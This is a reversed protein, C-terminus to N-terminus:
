RGSTKRRSASSTRSARSTRRTAGEAEGLPASFTLDAVKTDLVDEFTLSPDDRRAIIWVVAALVRMPPADEGKSDVARQFLRSVENIAVGAVAEIDVTERLSLSNMDIQINM